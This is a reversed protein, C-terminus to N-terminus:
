THRKGRAEGQGEQHDTRAGMQPWGRRLPASGQGVPGSWDLIQDELVVVRETVCLSRESVLRPVHGPWLCVWAAARGDLKMSSLPQTAPLLLGNLEGYGSHSLAASHTAETSLGKGGEFSFLWGVSCFVAHHPGGPFGWLDSDESTPHRLIHCLTLTTPHTTAGLLYIWM